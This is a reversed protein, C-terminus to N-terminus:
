RMIIIIIVLLPYYHIMTMWWKEWRPTNWRWRQSRMESHNQHLVHSNFLFTRCAVFLILISILFLILILILYLRYPLMVNIHSQIAAYQNLRDEIEALIEMSIYVLSPTIFISTDPRYRYRDISLSLSISVSIPIAISRTPSSPPLCSIEAFNRHKRKAKRTSKLRQNGKCDWQITRM